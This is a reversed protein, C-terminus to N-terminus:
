NGSNKLARALKSENQYQLPLKNNLFLEELYNKVPKLDKDDNLEVELEFDKNGNEYCVKDIEIVFEKGAIIQKISTRITKFSITTQLFAATLEAEFRELIKKPLKSAALGDRVFTRASEPDIEEEIEIRKALGSEESTSDGKITLIARNDLIRIRLAWGSEALENNTTDFFFNHQECVDDSLPMASLLATYNDESELDLKLELEINCNM